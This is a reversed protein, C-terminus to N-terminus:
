IYYRRRIRELCDLDAQFPLAPAQPPLLYLRDAFPTAALNRNYAEVLLRELNITDEINYALLTELASTDGRKEYENWLAVAFSGDVGDLGGRHIGAMKECGKLGGKFGLKALVYRLDIHAQDLRIHFYRELFPVDFAKGNYSVLVKFNFIDQPFHDLNHGNVYTHVERGDYLAITTLDADAGLGTTEIDIYATTHRFHPFIRWLEWNALLNIFFFPDQDTMALRSQDLLRSIEKTSSNALRVPSPEQWDNWSIVGAAWLRQETARGIGPLHCFTHFLM